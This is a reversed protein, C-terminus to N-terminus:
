DARWSVDVVGYVLIQPVTFAVHNGAQKFNLEIPQDQEADPSYLRVSRVPTGPPMQNLYLTVDIQHEAIPLEAAPGKLKLEAAKAEDRNFNVLHLQVRDSKAFANARLTFPGDIVSRNIGLMDALTEMADPANTNSTAVVHQGMNIQWNASRINMLGTGTFLTDRAKGQMDYQGIRGLLLLKGGQEQYAVLADLQVDSMVLAAPVVVAPYQKLRELTVNHDAVVDVLWQRDIMAQSIQKFVDLTDRHGAQISQRPLVIGVDAVRRTDKYFDSHERLWKTYQVGHKFGADDMFRMYQGMGAGGTAVGEAIATRMRVAEYKGLMFPKGGSLERIYLAILWGDGVHGEAITKGAHAGSYWFYNEGKGWLEAPLFMREETVGLWGIHNWTAIILDPKLSRGYGILVEDFAEKFKVAGFRMAEYDIPEAEAPPYGPINGAIKEFTHGQLDDIGFRAKLEEASYRDGLYDKFAQQCYPCVCGWRYNYNSMIGDVGSDIAVKLMAKLMAIAHPSSLCLGVYNVYHEKTIVNGESDRQLLERIDDHPKQGLLDAPWHNNYFDVFYNQAEWDAIVNVMQFHGVVKLGREHIQKNVRQQVDLAEFQGRVPLQMPYGTAKETDAYGHFMPGYYGVQVIEPKAEDLYALFKPDTTHGRTVLFTHFDFNPEPLDEHPPGQAGAASTAALIAILVASWRFTFASLRPHITM